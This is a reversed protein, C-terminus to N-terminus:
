RATLAFDQHLVEGSELKLTAEGAAEPVPAEAPEDAAYVTIAATGATLGNFHYAGGSDSTTFLQTDGQICTIRMDPAPAGGETVIGEVAADGWPLDIDFTVVTGHAAELREEPLVRRNGLVDGSTTVQLRYSLDMLHELRYTGDENARAFKVDRAALLTEPTAGDLPTEIAIAAVMVEGEPPAGGVTVRGEIIGGERLIVRMREAIPEVANAYGEKMIHAETAEEPISTITFNGDADTEAAANEPGRRQGIDLDNVFVLAGALPEGASNTVTGRVIRSPTLKFELPDSEEGPSLAPGTQRQAAYGPASVRLYWAMDLRAPFSFDGSDSHVSPTDPGHQTEGGFFGLEGYDLEFQTIPKGTVADIVRGRITAARRAVITVEPTEAPNIEDYGAYKEYPPSPTAHVRYVDDLLGKFAFHGDDGTNTEQFSRQNTKSTGNIYVRCDRLPQGQEDVVRGALSHPGTLDSKTAVKIVLGDRPEPGLEVTQTLEDMGFELGDVRGKLEWTGPPLEASFTPEPDSPQGHWQGPGDPHVPRSWLNAPVARGQEDVFRGTVVTKPLLTLTVSEPSADAALTVNAIHSALEKTRASMVARDEPQAGWFTFEGTNGARTYCSKAWVKEKNTRTEGLFLEAEVIADAVPQGDADVVRGRIPVGRDVAFDLNATLDDGVTITEMNKTTGSQFIPNDRELHVYWSGPQIGVVRYSGDAKSKGNLMPTGMRFVEVNINALPEGTNADTIRGSLVGGGPPVVIRVEPPTEGAAVTLPVQESRFHDEPMEDYQADYALLVLQGTPVGSFTFRGQEDSLTERPEGEKTGMLVRMDPAPLGTDRFVVLGNVTTGTNAALAAEPTTNQASDSPEPAAAERPVASTESAAPVNAASQLSAANGATDTNATRADRMGWWAGGLTLAAVAAVPLAVKLLAGMAVPVAVAKASTAAMEAAGAKAGDLAPLAAIVGATFAKGPRTDTLTSEVLTEVEARLMRRGRSLRQKVNDESLELAEAIARVSEGQRYFLILPERYDEPIDALARWVLDARQQREQQVEPAEGTPHAIEAVSEMSVTQQRSQKRIWNRALNRAISCLWPAIADPKELTGLKRWALIFAEQAVDESQALNGTVSYAVASVTSQYRAVIEGFAQHDGRLSQQVLHQTDTSM